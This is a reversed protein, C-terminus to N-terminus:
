VTYKEVHVNLNKYPIFEFVGFGYNKNPFKRSYYHGDPTTVKPVRGLALHGFFINKDPFKRSFYLDDLTAVYSFYHGNPNAVKRVRGLPWFTKILSDKPFSTAM